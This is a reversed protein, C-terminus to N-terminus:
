QLKVQQGHSAMNKQSIVEVLDSISWAQFWFIFICKKTQYWIITKDGNGLFPIIQVWLFGPKTLINQPKLQINIANYSTAWSIGYKQHFIVEGLSNILNSLWFISIHKKTYNLNSGWCTVGSLYMILCSYLHFGQQFILLSKRWHPVRGVIERKKIIKYM